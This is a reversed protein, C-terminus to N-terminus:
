GIPEASVQGLAQFLEDRQVPKALYADMGSALCKERDEQMANATMAIIPIHNGSEAEEARIQATAQYGDMEPMQVDMLVADFRERQLAEIVELGNNAVTVQHGGDELFRTAVLQNVRGDEALLLKLPRPTGSGTATATASGTASGTATAGDSTSGETPAAIGACQEITELLASPKVPKTLVRSIGLEALEAEDMLRGAPSLLLMAPASEAFRSRIHRAVDEGDMGPMSRDIILLQFKSGTPHSPAELVELAESGGNALTAVIGWSALIEGLIQRSTENDDVVLVRLGDLRRPALEAPQDAAIGLRALTFAQPDRGAIMGDGGTQGVM